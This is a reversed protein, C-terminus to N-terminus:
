CYVFAPSVGCIHSELKMGALWTWGIRGYWLKIGLEGEDEDNGTWIRVFRLLLRRQRRRADDYDYDPLICGPCCHLDGPPITPPLSLSDLCMSLFLINNHLPHFISRLGSSVKWVFTFLHCWIALLGGGDTIVSVILWRRRRGQWMSVGRHRHM